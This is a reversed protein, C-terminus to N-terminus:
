RIIFFFFFTLLNKKKKKKRFFSAFDICPFCLSLACTRGVRPLFTAILQRLYQGMIFIILRSDWPVFLIIRRLLVKWIGESMWFFSSLPIFPAVSSYWIFPRRDNAFWGYCHCTLTHVLTLANIGFLMWHDLLLYCPVIIRTRYHPILLQNCVSLMPILDGDNLM